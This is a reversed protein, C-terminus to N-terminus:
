LMKTEMSNGFQVEVRRACPVLRFTGEYSRLQLRGEVYVFKGKSVFEGAM